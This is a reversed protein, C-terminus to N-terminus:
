LAEPQANNTLESRRFGLLSFERTNDTLNGNQVVIVYREGDPSEIAEDSGHTNDGGAMQDGFRQMQILDVVSLRRRTNKSSAHATVGVALLCLFLLWRAISNPM